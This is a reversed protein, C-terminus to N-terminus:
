IIPTEVYRGFVDALADTVEGVTAHASVADVLSPMVNAIPDAATM